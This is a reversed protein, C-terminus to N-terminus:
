TDADPDPTDSEDLVRFLDSREADSMLNRQRMFEILRANVIEARRHKKECADLKFVVKGLATEVRKLDKEHVKQRDAQFKKMQGLQSEDEEARRRKYTIWLALLPTLVLTVIAGSAVVWIPMQVVDEAFLM